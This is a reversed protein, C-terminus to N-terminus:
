PLESVSLCAPFAPSAATRYYVGTGQNGIRKLGQWHLTAGQYVELVWGCGNPATPHSQTYYVLAGGFSGSPDATWIVSTSDYSTRAPFTGNWFSSIAPPFFPAAGGVIQLKRAQQILGDVQIVQLRFDFGVPPAFAGGNTDWAFYMKGGSNEHRDDRYWRKQFGPVNFYTQLDGEVAAYGSACISFRGSGFPGLVVPEVQFIGNAIRNTNIDPNNEDDYVSYIHALGKLPTLPPCGGVSDSFGTVYAVDYHGPPYDTPLEEKLLSPDGAWVESFTPTIIEWEVEGPIDFATPGSPAAPVASEPPCVPTVGGGRADISVSLESEGDNTIASIKFVGNEPLQFSNGEVCEAIIVYEGDPNDEDVAQYINFCLAGPYPSWSLTLNGDGGLILGTPGSLLGFPDLVIVPSGSGSFDCCIPPSIYDLRPKRLCLYHFVSNM